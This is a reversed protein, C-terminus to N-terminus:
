GSCYVKSQQKRRELEELHQQANLVEQTGDGDTDMSVNPSTELITVSDRAAKCNASEPGILNDRAATPNKPKGVDQGGGASLDTIKAPSAPVTSSHRISVREAKVNKPALSSFHWVGAADRWKYIVEEAQALTCAGLALALSLLATRTNM